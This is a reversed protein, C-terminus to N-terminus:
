YLEYKSGVGVYGCTKSSHMEFKLDEPVKRTFVMKWFPRSLMKPGLGHIKQVEIGEEACYKTLEEPKIFLKLVHMNKPTNKVFWEVGKIVALYSIWNRNFTHFFFQGGPKLVRSAEKITAHPDTVHELFDMSCVVDFSEDAFPLNYADAAIYQVSKTKDKKKAIELSEKSLDIGTVKHGEEALANALFGAGCGIDLIASKKLIQSIVWPTRAYNEARLLAVPHSCSTYWEENLENYFANNVEEM